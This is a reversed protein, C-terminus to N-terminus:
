ARSRRKLSVSETRTVLSFRERVRQELERAQRELKGTYTRRTQRRPPGAGGERVPKFGTGHGNIELQAAEGISRVGLCLIGGRYADLRSAPDHGAAILKRCLELVPAAATVTIGLATATNSGVLEARLPPLFPQNIKIRRPPM